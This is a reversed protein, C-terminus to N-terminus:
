DVETIHGYRRGSNMSNVGTLRDGFATDFDDAELAWMRFVDNVRQFVLVKGDYIDFGHTEPIPLSIKEMLNNGLRLNQVVQGGAPPDFTISGIISNRPLDNAPNLGFYLSMGRPFDIQNGPRDPGRNKTVYGAEIWFIGSFENPDIQEVEEGEQVHLFSGKWREEYLQLIELAPTAQGWLMEACAFAKGITKTNELDSTAQLSAGAEISKKLGNASFNGSGVVMGFRHQIENTFFSAKAHFDRRPLFGAQDILWGGDVIRVDTNTQEVVKRIAAPQSRGYDI